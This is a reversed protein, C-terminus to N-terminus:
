YPASAGNLQRIVGCGIKAGAGGSPQTEMDDPLSHIIVSRGLIEPISFRKDYFAAWAYGQNGMLPIMDGAHDPHPVGAPDYHDGTRDFPLTCDGKEHIHMAYFDSSQKVSINPLGFVEAEILVGDYPTAFFRVIGSLQPNQANGGIWAAAEPRGNRLIDTFIMGPTMDTM